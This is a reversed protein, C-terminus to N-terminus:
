QWLQALGPENLRRFSGASQLTLIMRSLEPRTVRIVPRRWSPWGRLARTAPQALSSHRCRECPLTGRRPRLPLAHRGLRARDAAQDQVHSVGVRTASTAFGARLSHGSYGTPGFGATAMRDRVILSVAEGSLTSRSLAAPTSRRLPVLSRGRDARRHRAAPTRCQFRALM